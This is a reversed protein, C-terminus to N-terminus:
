KRYKPLFNTKGRKAIYVFGKTKSNSAQHVADFLKKNEKSIKEECAVKPIYKKIEEITMGQQLLANIIQKEMAQREM